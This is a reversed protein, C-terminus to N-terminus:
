HGARRGTGAPHVRLRGARRGPTGSGAARADAPRAAAGAAPARRGAGGTGPGTRAGRGLALEADVRDETAALRLESLRTVPAAAFPADAVDALAPGRWLALAQRLQTAGGAQDGDALAARGAAVLTEFVLADLHSAPVALRYGAPSYEIADRGTAARLRSVLAQLANAADAPAGGAWLDEALRDAPVPRGCSIALRILLARLRAGGVAIMSGAEDRVELPGLVAIRVSM